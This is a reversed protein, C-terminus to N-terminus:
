KKRIHIGRKKEALKKAISLGIIGAGIVLYEIETFDFTKINGM